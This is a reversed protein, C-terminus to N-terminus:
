SIGDQYEVKLSDQIAEKPIAFEPNGMSGPAVEYKDFVIVLDGEDNWYFNHDPGVAAFDKGIEGDNTWYTITEDKEANEQMQKKIENVLLESFDGTRFLDGLTVVKGQKKDMHYFKFYNDSSGTVENVSLKLTFWRDTNKVVEYDVYVSGHGGNGDRELEQYFQTVLANTLAHVDQNILDAAGSDGGEIEPEDIHMEHNNDAYFYNRITVVRVIDGIVPIQELAQAYTVSVNPLLFLAVFAFCAAAAAVRPWIRTPKASPSIEPLAALAQEVCIKVSDPVDAREEQAKSKIYQDLGNM